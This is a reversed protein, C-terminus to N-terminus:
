DDNGFTVILGRIFDAKEADTLRADPHVLLFDFLPMEGEEVTEASEGAEEQARDWESYNLAERGEDVHRQTVWSVPAVSTYWPWATENSHCDFCAREAFQRTAASDWQPEATVPPNDHSRGYPVLQAVMLVVLVAVTVAAPPSLETFRRLVMWVAWSAGALGALVLGWGGGLVLGVAVVFGVGVVWGLLSRTTMRAM